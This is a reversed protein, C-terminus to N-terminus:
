VIRKFSKELERISWRIYIPRGHPCNSPVDCQDLQNMLGQIETDSLKQNARIAGHCAMLLLCEDIAKELGPTFGIEAMKEVIEIVVPTVEKNELLAPVSKIVFTNKGFPAIDLGLEHLNPIMDELIKAERYGLEIIEPVLRNQATKQSTAARSKLQEFLIREHAAHQDILVLGDLSECLIYTNRFQGIVRLEGFRKKTWLAEQQVASPSFDDPDSTQWLIPTGRNNPWDKKISVTEAETKDFQTKAEAIRHQNSSPRITSLSAPTWQKGDAMRLTRAVAEAVTDHIKAQQAFRIEHKTPHVNVDVQDFPVRIFLVAVPFQGKVLRGEYGEFLAHQVVRDRVWRNNVYVYIGRSTSRKISPSSLWGVMELHDSSMDVLHFDGHLGKGLVDVIRDAHDSVASWNKLMNNNHILRFQVGPWGLAISAVTDAIHGMETNVTKLFKRRAPTNFFLQKVTIMTGAPAGIDSVKKITGGEIIIETGAPEAEAKTTLNFKSVSAISPLAEGRFGRTGITILDADKYIKSTAYREIALLADDRRMGTGNDAVRILSRGGKEVEIVIKTSGADLSNEVLEKVVSSPREVVEGAAIKNSLIEPLIKIKSM